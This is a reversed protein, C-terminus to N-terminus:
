ATLAHVTRSAAGIDAPTIDWPMKGCSFIWAGNDLARRAAGETTYQGCWEDIRRRGIEVAVTYSQRDVSHCTLVIEVRGAPVRIMQGDTLPPQDNAPTLTTIM